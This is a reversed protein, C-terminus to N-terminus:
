PLSVPPTDAEIGDTQLDLLQASFEKDEAAVVVIGSGKGKGMKNTTIEIPAGLVECELAKINPFFLSVSYRTDPSAGTLKATMKVTNGTRQLKVTGLIPDGPENVNCFGNGKQFPASAKVSKASAVGGMSMLCITAIVTFAWLRAKM